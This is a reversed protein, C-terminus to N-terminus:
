TSYTLLITLSASTSDTLYLRRQRRSWISGDHSSSLSPRGSPAYVDEVRRTTVAPSSAGRQPTLPSLLAPSSLQRWGPTLPAISGGGATAARQLAIHGLGARGDSYVSSTRPTGVGDLGDFGNMLTGDDTMTTRMMM